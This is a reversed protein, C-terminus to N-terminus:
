IDEFNNIILNLYKTEKVKYLVAKVLELIQCCQKIEKEYQRKSIKIIENDNEEELIVNNVLM